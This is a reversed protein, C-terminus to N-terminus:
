CNIEFKEVWVSQAKDSDWKEQIDELLSQATAESTTTMWISGPRVSKGDVYDFYNEDFKDMQDEFDFWSQTLFEQPLTNDILIAYITKM